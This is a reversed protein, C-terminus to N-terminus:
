SDIFRACYFRLVTPLHLVAAIVASQYVSVRAGGERGLE